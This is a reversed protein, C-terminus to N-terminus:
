LIKKRPGKGLNSSTRPWSSRGTNAPPKLLSSDASIREATQAVGHTESYVAPAIPRRPNCLTLHKLQQSDPGRVFYGGMDTTKPRPPACLWCFETEYRKYYTDRYKAVGYIILTQTKDTIAQFEEDTLHILRKEFPIRPDTPTLWAIVQESSGNPGIVDKAVITWPECGVIDHPKPLSKVVSLRVLVERIPQGKHQSLRTWLKRGPATKLAHTGVRVIRLGSGSDSRNEGAERFFYLGQSPWEMRGSCDALTRAGDINEELTDLLSYLRVLSQLRADSVKPIRARM